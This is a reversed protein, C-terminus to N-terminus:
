CFLFCAEKKRSVKYLSFGHVQTLKSKYIGILQKRQTLFALYCNLHLYHFSVRNRQYQSLQYIFLMCECQLGVKKNITELDLFGWKHKLNMKISCLIRQIKHNPTKKKRLSSQDTASYNRTIGVITRWAKTFQWKLIIEMVSVSFFIITNCNIESNYESIDSIFELETLLM